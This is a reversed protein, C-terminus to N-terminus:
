ITSGEVQYLLFVWIYTNRFLTVTLIQIVMFETIPLYTPVFPQILLGKTRNQLVM